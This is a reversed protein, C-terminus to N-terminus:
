MEKLKAYIKQCHELTEKVWRWDWSGSANLGRAIQNLNNGQRSLEALVAPLERNVTIPKEGLLRLVFDTQNKAESKQFQSQFLALEDDTMRLTVSRNRTRNPM